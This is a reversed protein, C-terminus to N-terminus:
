DHRPLWPTVENWHLLREKLASSVDAQEGTKALNRLQYPDNRLDFFEYEDDVVKRQLEGEDEQTLCAFLHTPTRIAIEGGINEIFASDDEFATNTDLLLSVLNRGQMYEPIQEGILSLLTPAVDVLSAVCSDVVGPQLRGPWSFIFPIRIAEDNTSHKNFRGHSGLNDGHDSLFVVVTNEMLGTRELCDLIRGVQDDVSAIMGYYLATLTRLDFGAPLENTWPEHERYYQYDYMYIKFWNEDYPLKGKIYANPRIEVEDPSYRTKFRDPVDFFPMHPLSLNHFLFFPKEHEQSLFGETIELEFDPAFGEVIMSQRTEDFYTQHTNRHSVKPYIARNFGLVGPECGIHWKGVLMTEYGLNKLLEPLTPDPFHERETGPEEVNGLIGTCTRSYQGSVLSARAPSCLPNSSCALEFRVGQSALRDINPTMVVEHGYCGLEFPRLQDCLLVVINPCQTSDTTKYTDSM